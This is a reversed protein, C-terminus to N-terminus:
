PVLSFGPPVELDPHEQFLRAWARRAIRDAEGAIAAEDLVTGDRRILCWRGYPNWM